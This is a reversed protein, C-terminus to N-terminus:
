EVIYQFASDVLCGASVEAMGASLMAPEALVLSASWFYCDIQRHIHHICAAYKLVASM